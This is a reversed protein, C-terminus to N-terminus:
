YIQFWYKVVGKLSYSDAENSATATYRLNAGLSVLQAQGLPIDFGLNPMIAGYYPSSGAQNESATGLGMGLYSHQILTIDGGFHYSGKVMIQNRTLTEFDDHKFDESLIEVALGFPVYPQYGVEFAISDTARYGHEVPDTIGGLLAFHRQQMDKSTVKTPAPFTSTADREDTEDQAMLPAPVMLAALLSLTCFKLKKNM